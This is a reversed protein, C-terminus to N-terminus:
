AVANFTSSFVLKTRATVFANGSFDANADETGSPSNTNDVKPSTIEMRVHRTPSSFMNRHARGEEEPKTFSVGQTKKHDYLSPDKEVIICDDFRNSSNLSYLSPSTRGHDKKYLPFTVKAEATIELAKTSLKDVRALQDQSSTM